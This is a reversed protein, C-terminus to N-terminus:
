GILGLSRAKAAAETRNAADLKRLIANLHSKVTSEAIYIRGAIEQNSCGQAALALVELERASLPELLGGSKSPIAPKAAPFADLLRACYPPAIGAHRAKSLLAAMAPGADLFSRLYGEAEALSLAENLAVLASETEGAQQLACARLALAQIAIGDLGAHRALAPLEDLAAFAREPLGVALWVRAQALWEANRVLSHAVQDLSEAWRRGESVQGRRCALVAQAAEVQGTLYTLAAYHPRRELMEDLARGAEDLEGRASLVEVLALRAHVLGEAQGWLEGQAVAERAYALAAKLEDRELSVRALSILVGSAFPLPHGGPTSALRLLRQADQMAANLRGQWILLGIYSNLAAIALHRNGGALGGEGAQRFAQAAVTFNGELMAVGGLVYWVVARAGQSSEELRQLALGAQTRAMELDGTIAGLYARIAAIHGACDDPLPHRREIAQLLPEIGPAQGTLLLLWGQFVGLWPRSGIEDAPLRAMWGGLRLLEGRNLTDLAHDQVLRGGQASDGAELWHYLAEDLYGHAELWAAARAHLAPISEGELAALRQRLLAAFLHHYRYWAPPSDLPLLFLNLRDLQALAGQSASEPMQLVAACLPPCMRELISTRLLFAQLPPPQQSLVESFLYDLIFRGSASLDALLRNIDATDRAAAALLRLGAPWGEAQAEVAALLKPNLAVSSNEALFAATEELNFRLDATRLEVVQGRGRWRSLPLLPDQRSLILLRAMPPLHEVFFALDELVAASGGGAPPTEVLHFDDLALLLQGELGSLENLLSVLAAQV